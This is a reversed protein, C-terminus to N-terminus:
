VGGEGFGDLRKVADERRRVLYDLPQVIKKM